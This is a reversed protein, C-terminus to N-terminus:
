FRTTKRTLTDTLYGDSQRRLKHRFLNARDRDPFIWNLRSAEVDFNGALCGLGRKLDGLLINAVPKSLPIKTNPFFLSM